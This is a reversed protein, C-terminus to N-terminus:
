TTDRTFTFKTQTKCKNKVLSTTNQTWINIEISYNNTIGVYPGTKLFLFIWPHCFLTLFRVFTPRGGESTSDLRETSFFFGLLCESCLYNSLSARIQLKLKFKLLIFARVVDGARSAMIIHHTHKMGQKGFSVNKTVDTFKEWVSNYM